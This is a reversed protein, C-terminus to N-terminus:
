SSVGFVGGKTEPAIDVPQFEEITCSPKANALSPLLLASALCLLSAKYKM